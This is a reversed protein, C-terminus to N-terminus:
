AVFGVREENRRVLDVSIRLIQPALSRDTLNDLAQLPGQLCALGRLSLDM